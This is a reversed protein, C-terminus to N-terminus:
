EVMGVRPICAFIRPEPSQISPPNNIISSKAAEPTEAAQFEHDSLNSRQAPLSLIWDTYMERSDTDSFPKGQKTKVRPNLVWGVRSMRQDVWRSM